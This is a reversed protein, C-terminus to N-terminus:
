QITASQLLTLGTAIISTIYNTLMNTNSKTSNDDFVDSYALDTLETRVTATNSNAVTLLAAGKVLVYVDKASNINLNTATLTISNASITWTNYVTTWLDDAALVITSWNIANIGGSLNTGKVGVTVSDLKIQKVSNLTMKYVVDNGKVYSSVATVTPVENVTQITSSINGTIGAPTTLTGGYTNLFNVTSLVTTFSPLVDGSTSISSIGAVVSYTKTTWVAITKNLNTIYLMNGSKTLSSVLVGSDLLQANSIKNMDSTSLGNLTFYVDNMVIDANVAKLQINGIPNATTGYKVLAKTYTQAVQNPTGGAVSTLITSDATTNNWVATGNIIEKANVTDFHLQLSNGATSVANPVQDLKVTLDVPHWKSVTLYNPLILNLTDNAWTVITDSVLANGETDYVTVQAGDFLQRSAGTTDAKFSYLKSVVDSTTGFELNALVISKDWRQVNKTSASSNSLTLDATTITVNRGAISGIYSNVAQSNDVYQANTLASIWVPTRSWITVAPADSKLDGYVMFPVTGNVTVQSDFVFGATTNSSITDASIVNNGIKVYLNQLLKDFGTGATGTLNLKDFIIPQLAQITGSYFVVSKSGPVLTLASTTLESFKLNGWAVTVTGLTPTWTISGRFSTDAEVVTIDETNKVYLGYYDWVRDANALKWRIMYSIASNETNKITDNLVFSLVRGNITTNTSVKVDDRYVAVDSLYSLSASGNNNLVISKVIATKNSDTKWIRLEALDILKTSDVKPNTTYTSGSSVTVPLVTYDLTSLLASNFSWNTTEASSNVDTSQLQFQQSGSQVLSMVVDITESSKVVLPTTFSVTAVNNTFWAKSTIRVGDKEFYVKSAANLSSLGLKKLTISNVTIDSSWATLKISGFKVLGNSPISNYNVGISDLGLTGAKVVTSTQCQAPCTALGLSCSLTNEPTTCIEPTTNGSARQMMLMVYGRVEPANPNSINNMIGADKLANLHNVYYPNGGDNTTGYLVRSLVTGFQARNVVGSPNFATIGQGMLGLQCAKTIYGQMEETQNAVDTFTCTKTTDPTMGKVETAYNVMMKAMHSRLLSGYMNASDISSQTTIGIGYAYDYAGQLENSYSAAGLVTTPVAMGLLAVIAAVSFLKKFNKM